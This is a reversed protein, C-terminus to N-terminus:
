CPGVARYAYRNALDQCRSGLEYFADVPKRHEVRKLLNIHLDGAGLAIAGPTAYPDAMAPEYERELLQCNM